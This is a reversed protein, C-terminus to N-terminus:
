WSTRISCLYDLRFYVSQIADYHQTNCYAFLM